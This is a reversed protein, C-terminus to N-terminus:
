DIKIHELLVKSISDRNQKLNAEMANQYSIVNDVMTINLEKIVEFPKEIMKKIFDDTLNMGIVFSAEAIKQPSCTHEELPFPVAQFCNTELLKPHEEGIINFTEQNRFADGYDVRLVQENELIGIDISNPHSFGLYRWLAYQREMGKIKSFRAEKGGM